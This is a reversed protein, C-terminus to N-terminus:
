SYFQSRVTDILDDYTYIELDKYDNKIEIWADSNFDSRRGIILIRRPKYCNFGFKAKVWRRNNPDEFYRNYVRTQSIYSNLEASFTERSSTGVIANGKLRPLKFEIIDATGNSRLAFFDPKINNEDESQWECELQSKIDFYGLGMKLIFHNQQESLFTTIDVESNEADGYIEIFRNLQPLKEYKFDNSIQFHNFVDAIWYEDYNAPINISWNANVLSSDNEIDSEIYECPFFDIWYAIRTKLSDNVVDYFKCNILRHFKGRTLDLYGSNIALLSDEALIDWKLDVMHRFADLTPLIIGENSINDLVFPIKNYRDKEIGIVKAIYDSIEFKSYDFVIVKIATSKIIKESFPNGIYEVAVFETGLYVVIEELNLFLMNVNSSMLNNDLIFKCMKCIYKENIIKLLESVIKMYEKSEEM